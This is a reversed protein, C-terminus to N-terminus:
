FMMQTLESGWRITGLQYHIKKVFVTSFSMKKLSKLPSHSALLDCTEFLVSWKRCLCATDTAIIVQPTWSCYVVKSTISVTKM